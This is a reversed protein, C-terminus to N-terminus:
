AVPRSPISTGAFIDKVLMTGAATGDSKWLETGTNSVTGDTGRFFLTNGLVAFNTTTTSGVGNAAAAPNIDAIRVTGAVTGDSKWLEDGTVGDDGVFFLTGGVDMLNTIFDTSASTSPNINTLRITGATTGDTTWLELGTSGDNAIFYIKGGGATMMGDISSGTSGPNIDKVLYTGAATGDSRFLEAGNGDSSAAFYAIGNVVLAAGPSSSPTTAPPVSNIDKVLAASALPTVLASTTSRTPQSAEGSPNFSEDGCGALLASACMATLASLRWSTM